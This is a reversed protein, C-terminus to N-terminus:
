YYLLSIPRGKNEFTHEACSHAVKKRGNDTLAQHVFKYLIFIKQLHCDDNEGETKELEWM